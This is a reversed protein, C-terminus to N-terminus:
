KKNKSDNFMNAFIDSWGCKIILKECAIFILGILSIIILVLGFDNFFNAM